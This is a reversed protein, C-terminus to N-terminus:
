FYKRDLNSKILDPGNGKLIKSDSCLKTSNEQKKQEEELKRDDSVKKFVHLQQQLFGETSIRIKSMLDLVAISMENFAEIKYGYIGDLKYWQQFLPDWKILQFYYDNLEGPKKNFNLAWLGRYAGVSIDKECFGGYSGM